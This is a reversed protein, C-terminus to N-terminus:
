NQTLYLALEELSSLAEPFEGSIRLLNEPFDPAAWADSTLVRQHYIFQSSENTHDPFSIGDM